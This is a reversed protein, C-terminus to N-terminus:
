SYLLSLNFLVIKHSTVGHLRSTWRHKPPIHEEVKMTGLLCSAKKSPKHRNQFHPLAERSTPLSRMDWFVIIEMNVVTVVEFRIYQSLSVLSCWVYFPFASSCGAPNVMHRRLFTSVYRLSRLLDTLTSQIAHVVWVNCVLYVYSCNDWSIPLYGIFCLGRVCPCNM